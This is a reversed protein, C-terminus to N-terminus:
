HLESSSDADELKVDARFTAYGLIHLKGSPEIRLACRNKNLTGLRGFCFVLDLDDNM